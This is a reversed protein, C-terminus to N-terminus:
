MQGRRRQFLADLAFYAVSIGFLYGVCEFLGPITKVALWFVSVGALESILM